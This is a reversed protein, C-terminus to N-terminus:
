AAIIDCKSKNKLGTKARKEAATFDSLAAFGRPRVPRLWGHSASRHAPPGYAPRRGGRVPALINAITRDARQPTKEFSVPAFICVQHEGYLLTPPTGARPTRIHKDPPCTTLLAARTDTYGKVRARKAKRTFIYEEGASASAIRAAPRCLEGDTRATHMLRIDGRRFGRPAPHRTRMMGACLFASSRRVFSQM